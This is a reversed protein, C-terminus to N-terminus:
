KAAAAATLTEPTVAGVYARGDDLLLASLLATRVLRGSTGGVTVPSSVQALLPAAAAPLQVGKAQVVTTWSTGTTRVDTPKAVPAQAKHKPAAATVPTGSPTTFVSADPVSFDVSTFGVEIAPTSTHRARVQVRLPVKTASDVAIRVSGVLSRADRPTLVLTYTPRGAVTATREVTVATSPDIASLAARAAQEPTQAALLDPAGSPDKEETASGQQHAPLTRHTVADTTSDYTWVDSGRRVLSYEALQEDITLRSRDTGAAWVRLTHTGSSLTSPGSGSGHGGTLAPLSPLGLASTTKVTGSLGAVHATSLATLLQAATRAPLKPAATADAATVQGALVAGAVVAATAAPVAWRARSTLLTM